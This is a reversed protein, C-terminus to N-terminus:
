QEDSMTKRLFPRLSLFPLCPETQLGSPYHSIITRNQRKICEQQLVNRAGYLVEMRNGLSTDLSTSLPQMM